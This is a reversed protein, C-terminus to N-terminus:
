KRNFINNCALSLGKNSHSIGSVQLNGDRASVLQNSHEQEDANKPYSSKINTVILVTQQIHHNQTQIQFAEERNISSEKDVNELKKTEMQSAKM